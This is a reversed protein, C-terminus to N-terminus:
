AHSKVKGKEEQAAKAQSTAMALAQNIQELEQECGTLLTKKTDITHTLAGIEDRKQRQFLTLTNIVMDQEGFLPKEEGPKLEEVVKKLLGIRPQKRRLIAPWRKKLKGKKM